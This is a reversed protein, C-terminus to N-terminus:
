TKGLISDVVWCGRVHKGPQRCHSLIDANTCGAKELTDALVPLCDFTREDYIGQALRTVAPTLWSADVAVLRFPNGFIDRVLRCQAACEAAEAEEDLADADPNRDMAVAWAVTKAAIQAADAADGPEINDAAAIFASGGPDGFTVTDGDFVAVEAACEAAEKLEEVSARGDVYRETVDVAIRSQEDTFLHWIRRCCAAAFLRLKRESVNERLQLLLDDPYDDYALWEVETM